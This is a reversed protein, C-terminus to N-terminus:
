LKNLNDTKALEMVPEMMRFYFHCRCHHMAEVVGRLQKWLCIAHMKM